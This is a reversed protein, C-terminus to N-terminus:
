EDGTDLDVYNFTINGPRDGTNLQLIAQFTVTPDSVDAASAAIASFAQPVAEDGYDSGPDFYDGGDGYDGGDDGGGGEFDASDANLEIAEVPHADALYGYGDPGVAAAALVTRAELQEVFERVVAAVARATRRRGM